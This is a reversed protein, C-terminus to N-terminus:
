NKVNMNSLFKEISKIETNDLIKKRLAAELVFKWDTLYIVNIKKKKFKFYDGVIGYNFIVFIAKINAGVKEIAELFNLKSGGDTMLDEVLIINEKNKIVGEIQSNRGFKKKEKRIYIMPLNLNESILSAFPIGATEGGAISNIKKLNIKEKILKIGYDILKKREKPFSIIRRCDCYVPSKKGSTLRFQKKPSFTVCNIDILTEAVLSRIKKEDSINNM